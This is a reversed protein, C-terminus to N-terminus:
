SRGIEGLHTFKFGREYKLGYGLIRDFAAHAFLIVGILQFYENQLSFGIIWILVALGKHHFLNYIVAGIKPGFAYGIMGIDPAFFLLPFWWWAFDLYIFGFLGLFFLALEEMKLILKM